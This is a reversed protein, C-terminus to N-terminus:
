PASEFRENFTQQLGLCACCLVAAVSCLVAAQLDSKCRVPRKSAARLQAMVDQARRLLADREVSEPQQKQLCHTPLICATPPSHPAVRLQKAPLLNMFATRVGKNGGQPCITVPAVAAEQAGEKGPKARGLQAGGPDLGGPGAACTEATVRPRQQPVLGPHSFRCSPANCAGDLQCAALWPLALVRLLRACSCRLARSPRPGPIRWAWAMM